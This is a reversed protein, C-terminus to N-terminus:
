KVVKLLITDPTIRASCVTEKTTLETMMNKLTARGGALIRALVPEPKRLKKSLSTTEDFGTIKVTKVGLGSQDLARYVTLMRNKTNFTWLEQAALILQPEISVLKFEQDNKKFNLRKLIKEATMTKPKRTSRRIKKTNDGFKLADEVIQMYLELMQKVEPKSYNRYGYKLDADNGALVETLEDVMKMYYNAIYSSYLAPIQSQQLFEYVSFSTGKDLMHDITGIIDQARERINLQIDVPPKVLKKQVQTEDALQTKNREIASMIRNLLFEKSRDTIKGGRSLIRCLWGATVPVQTDPINKITNAVATKGLHELYEVIYERADNANCMYSYWNYALGLETDTLVGKATYDPEDGVYTINILYEQTKNIRLKKVRKFKRDAIRKAM